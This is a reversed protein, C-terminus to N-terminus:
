HIAFPALKRLQSVLHVEAMYLASEVKGMAMMRQIAKKWLERLREAGERGGEERGGAKEEGTEKQDIDCLSLLVQSLGHTVTLKEHHM